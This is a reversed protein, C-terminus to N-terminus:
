VLRSAKRKQHHQQSNPLRSTEPMTSQQLTQSNTWCKDAHLKLGKIHMHSSHDFARVPLHSCNMSHVGPMFWPSAKHKNSAIRQISQVSFGPRCSAVLRSPLLAQRMLELHMQFGARDAENMAIGLFRALLNQIVIHAHVWSCVM